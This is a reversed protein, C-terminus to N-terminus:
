APLVPEFGTHAVPVSLGGIPPNEHNVPTETVGGTVGGSRREVVERRQRLMDTAEDLMVHSYRDLTISARTHGVVERVVTIPTSAMVLLSIYRHRLDHPSYAPTGAFKCARKLANGLGHRTVHPFVQGDLDRDELPKLGDLMTLIHGPMPIFRRGSTRGKTRGRAIRLRGHRWDIDGWTLNVLESARLGSWDLLRVPDRYAPSVHLLIADIERTSPPNLEEDPLAPLQLRRSRSPNQPIDDRDLVMRICDLYKRVTAPSLTANMGNLWRQVDGTTITTVDRDALDGLRNLAQQYTKVTSTSRKAATIAAVFDMGAQRFTVVEPAIPETIAFVPARLAALEGLVHNRRADAERKTRFQGAYRVSSERGGLRYRVQYRRSGDPLRRAVIFASAM